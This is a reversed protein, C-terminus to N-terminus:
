SNFLLILSAYKQSADDDQSPLPVKADVVIDFQWREVPEDTLLNKFVLVLRQLSRDALWELYITFILFQCIFFLWVFQMIIENQNLLFISKTQDCFNKVFDRTEKEELECVCTGYMRHQTFLDRPFIERTQM